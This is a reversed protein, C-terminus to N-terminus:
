CPNISVWIPLSHTVKASLVITFALGPRGCQLIGADRAWGSRSATSPYELLVEQSKSKRQLRSHYLWAWTTPYPPALVDAAWPAGFSCTPDSSLYMGAPKM